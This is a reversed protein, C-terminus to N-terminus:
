GVEESLRPDYQKTSKAGTLSGFLLKSLSLSLKLKSARVTDRLGVQRLQVNLKTEVVDDHLTNMQLKWEIVSGGAIVFVSGGAMNVVTLAAFVNGGADSTSVSQDTTETDMFLM